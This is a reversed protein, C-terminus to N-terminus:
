KTGKQFGSNAAGKPGRGRHYQLSRKNQYLVVTYIQKESLTVSFTSSMIIFRVVKTGNSCFFSVYKSHFSFSLSRYTLELNTCLLFDLKSSPLAYVRVQDHIRQRRAFARNQVTRLITKRVATANASSANAGSDCECQQCECQQGKRVTNANASNAECQHRECQQRECEQRSVKTPLETIESGPTGPEFEM